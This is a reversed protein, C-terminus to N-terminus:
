GLPLTIRAGEQLGPQVCVQLQQVGRPQSAAGTAPERQHLAVTVRKVAGCFLEELSCSLPQLESGTNIAPAQPQHQQQRPTTSTQQHQPQRGAGATADRVFSVFMGTLLSQQAHLTDLISSVGHHDDEAGSARTGTRSDDDASAGSTSTARSADAGSLFAALLDAAANHQRKRHPAQHSM